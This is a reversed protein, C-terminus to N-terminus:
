HQKVDTRVTLSPSGLVAVEVKVCSGLEVFQADCELGRTRLVRGYNTVGSFLGIEWCRAASIAWRLRM